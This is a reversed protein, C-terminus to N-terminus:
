LFLEEIINYTLTTPYISFANLIKNFTDMLTHSFLIFEYFFTHNPLNKHYLTEPIWILLFIKLFTNKARWFHM